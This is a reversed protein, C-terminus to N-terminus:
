FRTLLRTQFMDVSTNISGDDSSLAAGPFLHGYLLAIKVSLSKWPRYEYSLSLNLELGMDHADAAARGFPTINVGGARFTAFGDAFDAVSRAYLFGVKLELTHHAKAKPAFVLPQFAIVPQIYFVNNVQGWSPIQDTGPPPFGVRTLDGVREASNASVAGLVRHFLILSPQYDPDFQFVRSIGDNTDNDGSAFGVELGIRIGAHPLRLGLRSLAGLGELQIGDPALETRVRTTFGTLVAAELQFDLGVKGQAFDGSLKLYFDFAQADIRRGDRDQQRRVAVYVGAFISDKQRYLLSFAGQFALDGKILEANEDRFVVDFAAGLFLRNGIPRQTFPKVFPFLWIIREVIDGFRPASFEGTQTQGNNAVMGMGWHSPMQGLRFEGIPSRWSVWLHRPDAVRFGQAQDRVPSFFRSGMTSNIGYLSDFTAIDLQGYVGFVKGYRFSPAFRFRHRVNGWEPDGLTKGENDLPIDNMYHYFFLHEGDIHLHMNAGVKVPVAQALSIGWVMWGLFVFMPCTHCLGWLLRRM